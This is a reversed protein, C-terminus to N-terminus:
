RAALGDYFPIVIGPAGQWTHETACNLLNPM